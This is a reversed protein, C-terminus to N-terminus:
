SEEKPMPGVKNHVYLKGRCRVMAIQQNQVLLGVAELADDKDIDKRSSSMDRILEEPEFALEVNKDSGLFRLVMEALDKKEREIESVPKAM